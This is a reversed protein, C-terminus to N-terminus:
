QSQDQSIPPNNRGADGPTILQSGMRDCIGILQQRQASTLPALHTIVMQVQEDLLSQLLRRWSPGGPHKDVLISLDDQDFPGILQELEEQFDEQLRLWRFLPGTEPIDLPHQEILYVVIPRIESM